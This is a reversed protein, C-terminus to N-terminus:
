DELEDGPATESRYNIAKDRETFYADGQERRAEAEKISQETSSIFKDYDEFQQVSIVPKFILVYDFLEGEVFDHTPVVGDVYGPNAVGLKAFYHQASENFTLRWELKISLGMQKRVKEYLEEELREHIRQFSRRDPTVKAWEMFIGRTIRQLKGKQAETLRPANLEWQETPQRMKDLVPAYHGSSIKNYIKQLERDKVNGQMKAKAKKRKVM